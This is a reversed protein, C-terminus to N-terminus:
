LMGALWQFLVYVALVAPAAAWHELKIWFFDHRSTLRVHQGTRPDLLLRDRDPHNMTKGVRWFLVAIGGCLAFIMVPHAPHLKENLLIFAVFGTVALVPVLFGYGRWILIM